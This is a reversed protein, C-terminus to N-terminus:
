KPPMRRWDPSRVWRIDARPNLGLLQHVRPRGTATQRFPVAHGNPSGASSPSSTCRGNISTHCGQGRAFMRVYVAAHTGTIGGGANRGPQTFGNGAVCRTPTSRRHHQRQQQQAATAYRFPSANGVRGFYPTRLPAAAVTPPAYAPREPRPPHLPPVPATPYARVYEEEEEEELGGNCDVTASLIRQLVAVDVVSEREEQQPLAAVDQQWPPQCTHRGDTNTHGDDSSNDSDSSNGRYFSASSPSINDGEDSHHHRHRHHCLPTEHSNAHLAAPTGDENNSYIISNGTQGASGKVGGRGTEELWNRGYMTVKRALESRQSRREKADVVAGISGSESAEEDSDAEQPVDWFDSECKSTTRGPQHFSSGSAIFLSSTKVLTKPLPRCHRSGGQSIRPESANHHGRQTADSPHAALALTRTKSEHSGEDDEDSLPAEVHLSKVDVAGRAPPGRRHPPNKTEEEEAGSNSSLAPPPINMPSFFSGMETRSGGAVVSGYLSRPAAIFDRAEKETRRDGGGEEDLRATSFSGFASRWMVSPAASTLEPELLSPQVGPALLFSQPPSSAKSLQDFISPFRYDRIHATDPLIANVAAVSPEATLLFATGEINQADCSTDSLVAASGRRRQGDHRKTTALNVEEEAARSAGPQRPHGDDHVRGTSNWEGMSQWPRRTHSIRQLGPSEGAVGQGHRRYPFASPAHLTEPPQQARARIDTPVSSSMLPTSPAHPDLDYASNMIQQRQPQKSLPPPPVGSKVGKVTFSPFSFQYGGHSLSAHSVALNM